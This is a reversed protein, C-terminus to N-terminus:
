LRPPLLQNLHPPRAQTKAVGQNGLFHAIKAVVPHGTAAFYQGILPDDRDHALRQRFAGLYGCGRGARYAPRRPRHKNVRLCEVNMEDLSSGPPSFALL